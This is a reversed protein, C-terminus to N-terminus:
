GNSDGRAIGYSQYETYSIVVVYYLLTTSKDIATTTNIIIPIKHGPRATWIVLGGFRPRNSPSTSHNM